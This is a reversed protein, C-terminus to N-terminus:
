KSRISKLYEIEIDKEKLAKDKERIIMDKFEIIMKLEKVEGSVDYKSENKIHKLTKIHHHWNGKDNTNYNCFKCYNLINKYEGVIKLTKINDISENMSVKKENKKPKKQNTLKHENIVDSSDDCDKFKNTIQIFEKEIEDYERGIDNRNKFKKDFVDIINKECKICDSVHKKIKEISGKPYQSLRKGNEQKTRGIKYIFEKTKIFEREHIIYCYSM